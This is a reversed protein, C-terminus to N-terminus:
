GGYYTVSDPQVSTNNITPLRDAASIPVGGWSTQSQPISVVFTGTSVDVRYANYTGSYSTYPQFKVPLGLTNALTAGVLPYAPSAPPLTTGGSTNGTDTAGTGENVPAQPLPAVPTTVSTGGPVTTTVQYTVNNSSSGSKEETTKERVTQWLVTVSGPLAPAQSLTVSVMGNGDKSPTFADELVTNVEYDIVPTSGPDPLRRPLFWLGGTAYVIRGVGDGVLRGNGDDTITQALTSTVEGSANRLTVEFSISVSGPKIGSDPLQHQWVPPEVFGKDRPTVHVASGWAVLVASGVDPLAGLTAVLAGTAYDVSGTGYAADSGTLSGAGDDALTYWKGLARYTLTLSGPWPAPLLTQAYVTGRTALTIPVQLTHAPRSVDLVPTYSVSIDRAVGNSRWADAGSVGIWVTGAEYDISVQSPVAEIGGQDIGSVRREFSTTGDGRDTFVGQVSGPHLVGPVSLVVTGPRPLKPLRLTLGGAAPIAARALVVPGLTASAIPVRTRAGVMEVASLPTERNTTPVLQTYVSDVTVALDGEAADQVLRRISYYRAADAVTTLRVLASRAVHSYRSPVTPGAFEHRLTSGIRLTVVRSRFAGQEDTLTRIEHAVDTIRVYQQYETVSGSEKSLCYVDGVEPLPEDPSQYVLVAGQGVLQRGYLVMRSEPGAIVYSEIRDRAASRDDFESGTSFLAALIRENDPADSIIAHAGAYTDLNATMVAGYVKRLNLRGYVADLRSVKPFINGPVGDAVIRGTRRGGGDSTDRMRESELLKIDTTFITM